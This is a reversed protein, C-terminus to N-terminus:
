GDNICRKCPKVFIYYTGEIFELKDGCVHCKIDKM